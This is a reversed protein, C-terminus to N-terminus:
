GLALRARVTADVREDGTWPDAEASILELSAGVADGLLLLGHLAYCGLDMLAGGALDFSWRPDSPAPAPMDMHVDVERIEGIEGSRVVDLLRQVAPHDAYHFAEWAWGAAGDMRAAVA